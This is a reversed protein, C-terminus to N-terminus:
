CGTETGKGRVWAKEDRTVSGGNSKLGKLLGSVRYFSMEPDRWYGDIESGSIGM